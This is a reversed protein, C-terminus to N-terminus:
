VQILSKKWLVISSTNDQELQEITRKNGECWYVFSKLEDITLGNSSALYFVLSNWKDLDIRLKVTDEEIWKFPNKALKSSNLSEELFYVNGIYNGGHGWSLPIFHELQYEVNLTLCCMNDYRNQLENLQEITLTYPLLVNFARRNSNYVKTKDTNNRQWSLYEGNDRRRKSHALLKPKDTKLYYKNKLEKYQNFNTKRWKISKKSTCPKCYPNLGDLGNKNNSYFYDTTAPYWCQCEGNCWKHDIGKIIKHTEDFKIKMREQKRKEKEEKSLAL